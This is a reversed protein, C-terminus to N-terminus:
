RVEREAADRNLRRVSPYRESLVSEHNRANAEVNEEQMTTNKNHPTAEEVNPPRMAKPRINPNQPQPHAHRQVPRMLSKVLVHTM